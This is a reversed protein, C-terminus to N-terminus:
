DARLGAAKVVKSRRAPYSRAQAHHAAALMFCAALLRMLSKNLM